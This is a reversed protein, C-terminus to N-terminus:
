GHRIAQRQPLAIPGAAVPVEAGHTPVGEGAPWGATLAADFVSAVVLYKRGLRCAGPLRGTAALHYATDRGIGARAAADRVTLLRPSNPASIM